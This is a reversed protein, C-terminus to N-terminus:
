RVVTTTCHAHHVVYESVSGLLIGVAQSHGRTGVVLASADASLDALAPGVAGFVTEGKAVVSPRSRRVHEIAQRVTVEAAEQDLVPPTMAGYSPLVNYVTVIQLLSDTRQAEDAAYELARSACDSGDVGVVIRREPVQTTQDSM